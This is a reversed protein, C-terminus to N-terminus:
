RLAAVELRKLRQYEDDSTALSRGRAELYRRAAAAILQAQQPSAKAALEWQPLYSSLVQTDMQHLLTQEKIIHDIKGDMLLLELVQIAMADSETRAIGAILQRVEVRFSELKKDADKGGKALEPWANEQMTSLLGVWRDLAPNATCLEAARLTCAQQGMEYNTPLKLTASPSTFPLTSWSGSPTESAETPTNKLGRLLRQLYEVDTEDAQRRASSDSSSGESSPKAISQINEYSVMALRIVMFAALLAWWGKRRRSKQPAQAEGLKMTKWRGLVGGRKRSVAKELRTFWDAPALQKIVGFGEWTESRSGVLYEIAAESPPDSWNWEEESLRFRQRWFAQQDDRFDAFVTGLRVQQEVQPLFRERTERDLHPFAFNILNTALTPFAFGTEVGLRLAVIATEPGHLRAAHALVENGLHSLNAVDQVQEWHGICAHTIVSSGSELEAILQPTTVGLAALASRGRTVRHLSEQWLQIAAAGTELSRCAFFLASIAKTAALQDDAGLASSVALEAEILAPPVSRLPLPEVVPKDPAAPTDAAMQEECPPEDRRQRLMSLAIEYAERVRQFGEPDSDPRHLKILRSYAVKVEKETAIDPNLELIQWPSQMLTYHDNM